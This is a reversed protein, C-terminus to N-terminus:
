LKIVTKQPRRTPINQSILTLQILFPLWKHQQEKLPQVTNKIMFKCTVRLKIMESVANKKMYWCYLTHYTVMLLWKNQM